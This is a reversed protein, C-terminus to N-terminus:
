LTALVEVRKVKGTANRPLEEGRLIWRSPVKYRAIRETMYGALEEETVPADSDVVVVACVEEGYDAHETGVVICERVSPHEVLVDEVEAPYVNEGGRLILDSRRSSIRLYGDEMTGLDGTAMWGTEDITAATAEPNNWYGLMVLPGRLYIEGEVGDM